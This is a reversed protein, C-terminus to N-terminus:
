LSATLTVNKDVAHRYHELSTVAPWWRRDLELLPESMRGAHSAVALAARSSRSEPCESSRLFVHVGYM